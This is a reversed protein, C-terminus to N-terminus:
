SEVFSQSVTDVGNELAFKLCECDHETFARIGLDVGPVNLGKRSRLEGGVVVVCQVASSMVSRVKLQIVGDNLFLDDGPKVAQPLQEFTTSAATEDGQMEGTSLVFQRGARLMLPEQKLAGIRMKPGPLDAMIAVRQGTAREAARLNKIVESHEEFEGH